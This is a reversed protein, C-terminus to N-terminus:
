RADPGPPWCRLLVSLATRSRWLGVPTIAIPSSLRECASFLSWATRRSRAASASSSRSGTTAIDGRSRAKTAAPVAGSPSRVRRVLVLELDARRRLLEADRRARQGPQQEV